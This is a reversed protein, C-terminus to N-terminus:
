TSPRKKFKGPDLRHRAVKAHFNKYDLGSARAAASINGHAAALADEFFHREFEEVVRAKAVRFMPPNDPVVAGAERRLLAFAPPLDDPTIEPGTSVLVAREIANQLERINGPYAHALLVRVVRASLQRERGHKAAFRELFRQALLVIDGQRDRLPPVEIEVVALRYFLDERFGGSAVLKRLDRNTAAIIRADSRRVTASGVRAFERSDIVRLLKVQLAPTMEGAEDLLITGGQAREFWGAHDQVAGTFAGRAHGFLESDLLSEPLAGCNVAVFPRGARRSAGHLARAILEKGTGSEGLILVGVDSDAVQAIRELVALLKADHGVIEAFGVHDRLTRSLEEVRAQLRRRELAGAIALSILDAVREILEATRGDFVGTLRRNDLYIAGLIEGAARVPVCIVSLVQLLRVSQAASVTPDDLVNASWFSEGSSRVRELITRSIEFEPRALDQHHLNRAEEFVPSGDDGTLVIIGREARCLEILGDLASALCQSPDREALVRKALELVAELM